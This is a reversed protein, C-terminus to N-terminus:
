NRCTVDITTASTRIDIPSLIHLKEWFRGGRGPFGVHWKDSVVGETTKASASASASTDRPAGPLPAKGITARLVKGTSGDSREWQYEIKMGPSTVTVHGVFELSAPCNGNYARPVVAATPLVGQAVAPTLPLIVGLM